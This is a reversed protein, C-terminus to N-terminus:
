EPERRGARQPYTPPFGRSHDPPEPCLGLRETSRRSNRLLLHYTGLSRDIYANSEPLVTEIPMQLILLIVPGSYIRFRNRLWYMQIYGPCCIRSQLPLSCVCITEQTIPSPHETITKILHRDCCAKSISSKTKNYPLQGTHSSKMFLAPFSCDWSRYTSFCTMGLFIVVDRLCHISSSLGLSSISTLKPLTVSVPAHLPNQNSCQWKNAKRRSGRNGHTFAFEQRSQRRGYSNQSDLSTNYTLYYHAANIYHEGHALCKKKHTHTGPM